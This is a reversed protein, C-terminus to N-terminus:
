KKCIFRERKKIEKFTGSMYIKNIKNNEFFIIKNCNSELKEYKDAVFFIKMDTNELLQQTAKRMIKKNKLTDLCEPDDFILVKTDYILARVIDLKQLEVKNYSSTKKNIINTLKLYKISKELQTDFSKRQQKLLIELNERGTLDKQIDPNEILKRTPSLDNRYRNKIDKGTIYVNGELNQLVKKIFIIIDKRPAELSAIGIVDGENIFSRIEKFLLLQTKMEKIKSITESSM